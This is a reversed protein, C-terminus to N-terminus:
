NDFKQTYTHIETTKIQFTLIKNKFFDIRQMSTSMERSIGREPNREPQQKGASPIQSDLVEVLHCEPRGLGEM